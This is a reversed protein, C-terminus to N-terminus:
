LLINPCLVTTCRIVTMSAYVHCVAIVAKSCNVNAQGVTIAEMNVLFLRVAILTTCVTDTDDEAPKICYTCNAYSPAEAKPAFKLSRKIIWSNRWSVLEGLGFIHVACVPWCGDVVKVLLQELKLHYKRGESCAVHHRASQNSAMVLMWIAMINDTNATVGTISCEVKTM